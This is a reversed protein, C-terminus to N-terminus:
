TFSGAPPRWDDTVRAGWCLLAHDLRVGCTFSSGASVSAFAAPPPSAEGSEDDGWCALTDDGDRIACAHRFGATVAKFSGPPTQSLPVDDYCVDCTASKDGCILGGTASLSCMFFSGMAISAVPGAPLFREYYAHNYGWCVAVHDVLRTACSHYDGAFVSAYRGAPPSAQGLDNWGWCVIADDDVRIACAHSGGASVSRYGAAHASASVTAGALLTAVLLALALPAVDACRRVQVHVSSAASAVDWRTRLGNLKRAPDSPRDCRDGVRM